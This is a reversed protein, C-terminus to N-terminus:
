PLLLGYESRQLSQVVAAGVREREREVNEQTRMARRLGHIENRLTNGTAELKTVGLGFQTVKLYQM